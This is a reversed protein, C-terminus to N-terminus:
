FSELFAIPIVGLYVTGKNVTLKVTANQGDESLGKIMEAIGSTTGAMEPFSRSVSDRWVDIGHIVLDFNGSLEGDDDISFPGSLSATHGDGFDLSVGHLAGKLGRPANPPMGESSIWSSAGDLTADAAVDVVPLMSGELELSLGNVSLAVDLAEGNQRMHMEGHRIVFRASGGASPASLKGKMEDYALSARQLGDRWAVGSARLLAWDATLSLDPSVRIQAPGDVEVVAHGPRYVQAASRLAGLTASTGSTRDDIDVSNCFVGVRFPFGRVDLDQCSVSFRGNDLASMRDGLFTSLRNAGYFWAACYLVVFLLVGIALARIKRASGRQVAHSSSAM